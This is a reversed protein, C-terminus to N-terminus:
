SEIERQRTPRHWSSQAAIKRATWKSFYAASERLKYVIFIVNWDTTGDAIYDVIYNFYNKYGWCNGESNIQMQISAAVNLILANVYYDIQRIYAM